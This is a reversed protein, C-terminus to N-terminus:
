DRACASAAFREVNANHVALTSSFLHTRDCAASAVFYLYDVAAPNVVAKISELGPNAIPGPPLGRNRYTNYPSEIALDGVTLRPKWYGFRELNAPVRSVAFQVTPDAQLPVDQALRNLFVAAILPREAASATEREVISALTVIQHLTLGRARGAATMEATVQKGFADLMSQVMGAATTKEDFAYTAPLLYGLLSAGGPRGELFTAQRPAALAADWDARSAIGEKQLTDGIEENRLGERFTVVQPRNPGAALLRVIEATPMDSTFRYRGAQLKPALGAFDLLARLAKGDSAIGARELQEVIQEASSGPALDVGTPANAPVASKPPPRSQVGSALVGPVGWVAVGLAVLIVATYIAVAITARARVNSSSM